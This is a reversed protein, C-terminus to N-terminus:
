STCEVCYIHATKPDQRYADGQHITAGCESCELDKFARLMWLARYIQRARGAEVLVGGWVGFLEHQTGYERCDLQIPCTRCIARAARLKKAGMKASFFIEHGAGSCAARDWDVDDYLM